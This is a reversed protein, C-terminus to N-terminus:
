KKGQDSKTASIGEGLMLRRAGEFGCNMLSDIISLGAVFETTNSQPYVPHEFSQYVLEIGAAVFKDDEQYGAAGGGCLYATGGVQKVMSILLDTSSGQRDLSSGPILKSTDLRLLRALSMIASSNFQALSDTRDNILEILAPYIEDFFPAGRYNTEVTKSFKTRWPSSDEIQIEHIRRLGHYARVVPMTIWSPNGNAILRVRNLWNGGKKPFQVNDLLIFVDARAIKNFYGLWPFFNPQHIAVLKRSTM